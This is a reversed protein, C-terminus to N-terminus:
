AAGEARLGAFAAQLDAILDEADELGAHIRVLEGQPVRRCTREPAPVTPVMLSEHGGWSSGLAFLSRGNFFACRQTSTMPNMVLGFVGSAGRFDRRWLAHGADDELAPWLIQRVEPQGRLWESLHRANAQHREMRVSLTRLGRMALYCDDPSVHCGWRASMDRIREYHERSAVSISGIVLDSHGGIYKSGSQISFDVGARLPQFNLPSAWSDDMISLAGRSRALAAVAPIDMMEFTASGPSELFVARTEPQFLRAISVGALPDFYDVAIGFRRLVTEAFRRTPGYVTDALLVHDGASLCSALALAIAASGSPTIVTGAACELASLAEALAFTTATGHSGYMVGDYFREHRKMYSTVDPYVITSARHLPPNILGSQQEPRPGGRAVCTAPQVTM